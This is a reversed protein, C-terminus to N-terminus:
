GTHCFHSKPVKTAFFLISDSSLLASLGECLGTDQYCQSLHKTLITDLSVCCFVEKM